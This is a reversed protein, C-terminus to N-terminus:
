KQLIAFRGICIPYHQKAMVSHRAPGMKGIYPTRVFPLQWGPIVIRTSITQISEQILRTILVATPFSIFMWYPLCHTFPSGISSCRQFIIVGCVTNVTTQLYFILPSFMNRIASRNVSAIPLYDGYTKGLRFLNANIVPATLAVVKNMVSPIATGGNDYAIYLWARAELLQAAAQVFHGGGGTFTQNPLHAIAFECDNIVQNFIATDPSKPVYQTAVTLPTTVLPVSGYFTYLRYYEWARLLRVEAAYQLKNAPTMDTGNYATLNQLFINYQALRQYGALYWFDTAGSSATIGQNITEENGYGFLDFGNDSIGDLDQIGTSLHYDQLTNYCSALAMDFDGKTNWFETSSLQDTPNKDLIKKCAGIMFLTIVSSLIILYRM